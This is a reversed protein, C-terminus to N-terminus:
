NSTKKLESTLIVLISILQSTPITISYVENLEHESNFRQEDWCYWFIEVLMSREFVYILYQDISEDLKLLHRFFLPEDSNREAELNKIIVYPSLSKLNENKYYGIKLRAIFQDVSAIYTPCYIPEDSILKNGLHFNLNQLGGEISRLEFAVTKRTGIIM